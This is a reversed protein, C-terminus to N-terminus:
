HILLLDLYKYSSYIALIILIQLRVVMRYVYIWQRCGQMGLCLVASVDVWAAFFVAKKRLLLGVIIFLCVSREEQNVRKSTMYDAPAVPTALRVSVDQRGRLSRLLAAVIAGTPHLFCGGAKTAASQKSSRWEGVVRRACADCVGQVTVVVVVVVAPRPPNM